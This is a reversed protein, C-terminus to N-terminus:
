LKFRRRKKEHSSDVTMAAGTVPDILELHIRCLKAGPVSLLLAVADDIRRELYGKTGTNV